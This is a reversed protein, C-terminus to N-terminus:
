CCLTTLKDRPPSGRSNATPTELQKSDGTTPPLITAPEEEVDEDLLGKDPDQSLDHAANNSDSSM